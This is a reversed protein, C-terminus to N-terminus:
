VTKQDKTEFFKLPLRSKSELISIKDVNWNM